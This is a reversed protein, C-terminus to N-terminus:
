LSPLTLAFVCYLFGHRIQEIGTWRCKEEEKMTAASKNATQAVTNNKWERQGSRDQIANRGITVLKRWGCVCSRTCKM